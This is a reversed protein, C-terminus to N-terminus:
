SIGLHPSPRPCAVVGQNLRRARRMGLRAREDDGDLSLCPRVPDTHSLPILSIIQPAAFRVRFLKMWRITGISADVSAEVGRPCGPSISDLFMGSLNGRVLRAAPAAVWHGERHHRANVCKCSGTSRRSRSRRRVIAAGGAEDLGPPTPPRGHSGPCVPLVQRQGFRVERWGLSGGSPILSAWGMTDSPATRRNACRGEGGGVLGMQGCRGAAIWKPYRDVLAISQGRGVM